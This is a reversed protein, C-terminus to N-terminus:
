KLASDRIRDTFVSLLCKVSMWMVNSPTIDRVLFSFSSPWLLTQLFVIKRYESLSHLFVTPFRLCYLRCGPRSEFRIGPLYLGSCQWGAVLEALKDSLFISTAASVPGSVSFRGRYFTSLKEVADRDMLGTWGPFLKRVGPGRAVLVRWM